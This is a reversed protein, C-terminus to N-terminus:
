VRAAAPARHDRALQAVVDEVQKYGTELLFHSGTGYSKGGLVFFDPEPNALVDAGLAPTDLCDGAGAGLLAAALKMPGRSAYCEHFQLERHISSDPGFGTNVIVRDVQEHRAQGGVMLTVRYRHTASNYEFGEVLAEGVHAIAPHGGAVLQRARAHLAVRGPLPDDSIPPYVAGRSKRTVWVISTGPAEDALTALDAVTTAASAGAGIVMVRKGAYHERRLGLVDEIHHAM